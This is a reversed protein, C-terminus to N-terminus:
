VIQKRDYLTVNFRDLIDNIELILTSSLQNKNKSVSVIDSKPHTKSSPRKYVDEINDLPEINLEKCLQYYMNIDSKLEEYKLKVFQKGNDPQMDFVVKNEICWRIALKKIESYDEAEKWSFGYNDSLFETLKPQNEFHSLDYLWPFKVRNQSAIVDYPNRYIFLVPIKFHANFYHAGLNCRVFKIIYKKPVFPWLHRKYKRNSMQAIWNCDVKNSFVAKLYRQQAKTANVETILKDCILHGEKTQFEHEPEFM